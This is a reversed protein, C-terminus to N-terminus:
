LGSARQRMSAIVGGDNLIDTGTLYGAKDSACFALLDAMEEKRWGIVDDRFAAALEDDGTMAAVVARKTAAQPGTSSISVSSNSCVRYRIGRVTACTGTM